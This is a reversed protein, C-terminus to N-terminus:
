PAKKKGNDWEYDWEHILFMVSYWSKDDKLANINNSHSILGKEETFGKEHLYTLPDCDSIPDGYYEKMINRLEESAQPM